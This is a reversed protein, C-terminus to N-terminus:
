TGADQCHCTGEPLRPCQRARPAFHDWPTKFCERALVYERAFDAMAAESLGQEAALCALCYQEDVYNLALNMIQVRECFMAGCRDCPYDFFSAAM